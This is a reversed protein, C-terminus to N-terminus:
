WPRTVVVLTPRSTDETTAVGDEESSNVTIAMLAVMAAVSVVMAAINATKTVKLARKNTVELELSVLMSVAPKLTTSVM